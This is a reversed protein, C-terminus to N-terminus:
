DRRGLKVEKLAGQRGQIVVTAGIQFRTERLLDRIRQGRRGLALVNVEFRQHFSLTELIQGILLSGETVM